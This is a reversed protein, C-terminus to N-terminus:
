MLSFGIDAYSHYDYNEEDFIEGNRDINYTGFMDKKSVEHQSYSNDNDRLMGLICADVLLQNSKSIVEKSKNMYKSIFERAEERTFGVFEIGLNSEIYSIVKLQGETPM